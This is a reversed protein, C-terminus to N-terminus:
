FYNIQRLIHVSFDDKSAFHDHFVEFRALDTRISQDTRILGVNLLSCYGNCRRDAFGEDAAFLSIFYLNLRGFPMRFM